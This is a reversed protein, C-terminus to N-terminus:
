IGQCGTLLILLKGRERRVDRLKNKGVKGQSDQPPNGFNFTGLRSRLIGSDM